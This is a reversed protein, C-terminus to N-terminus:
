YFDSGTTQYDFTSMQGGVTPYERRFAQSTLFYIYFPAAHNLTVLYFAFFLIFTEIQIQQRSKDVATRNTVSTELLIFPYLLTTVVYITVEALLM